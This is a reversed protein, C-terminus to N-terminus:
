TAANLHEPGEVLFLMITRINFGENEFPGKAKIETFHLTFNYFNKSQLKLHVGDVTVARGYRLMGEETDILLRKRMKNALEKIASTVATGGPLYSKSDIKENVPVTQGPKFNTKAFHRM